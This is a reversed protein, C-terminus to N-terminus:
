GRTASRDSPSAIPADKVTGGSEAAWSAVLNLAEQSRSGPAASYVFMKQDDAGPVDFAEYTITIRGALPHELLKSGFTCEYVRHENWKRRFEDSKVTLEGILENLFRDGPNASTDVRLIAAADSAVSEWGVFRQRAEDALFTWRALNRQEFPVTEFDFLVERALRNMALLQMGRGIVFAPSDTFSALLHHISPRVRQVPLPPPPPAETQANVLAFFYDRETENLRLARAVARLVAPSVHKTRGQELRAYYDVSVGSLQAVEERRLGQVRRVSEPQTSPSVIALGVDDPTLRARSARLFQKLGDQSEM